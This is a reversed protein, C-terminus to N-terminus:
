KWRDFPCATTTTMTSETEEREEGDDQNEKTIWLEVNAKREGEGRVREWEEQQQACILETMRCYRPLSDIQAVCVAVVAVIANKQPRKMWNRILLTRATCVALCLSREKRRWLDMRRHRLRHMTCIISLIAILWHARCRNADYLVCMARSM